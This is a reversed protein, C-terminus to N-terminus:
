TLGSGKWTLGSSQMRASLQATAQSLGRAM